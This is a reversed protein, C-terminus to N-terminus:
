EQEIAQKQVEKFDKEYKILEENKKKLVRAKETIIPLEKNEELVRQYDKEMQQFKQSQLLGISGRDGNVNIAAVVRDCIVKRSV